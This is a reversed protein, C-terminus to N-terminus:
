GASEGHPDRKPPRGDRPHPVGWVKASFLLQKALGHLMRVEKQTPRSRVFMQRLVHFVGDSRFDWLFRDSADASDVIVWSRGRPEAEAWIQPLDTYLYRGLGFAACARKFAQMAASTAQSHESSHPKLVPPTNSM